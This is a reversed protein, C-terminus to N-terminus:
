PEAKPVAPATTSWSRLLMSCAEAHAFAAGVIRLMSSFTTSQSYGIPAGRLEAKCAAIRLNLIAAGRATSTGVPGPSDAVVEEDAGEEAAEEPLPGPWPFPVTMAALAWPTFWPTGPGAAHARAARLRGEVSRTKSQRPAQDAAGAEQKEAAGKVM